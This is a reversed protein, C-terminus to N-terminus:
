KGRTAGAPNWMSSSSSRTHSLAPGFSFNTRGAASGSKRDAAAVYPGRTTPITREPTVLVPGLAAPRDGCCPADRERLVRALRASGEMGHFVMRWSPTDQTRGM